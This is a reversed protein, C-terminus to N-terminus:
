PMKNAEKRTRKGGRQQGDKSSKRRPTDAKRQVAGTRIAQLSEFADHSFKLVVRMAEDITGSKLVTLSKVDTLAALGISASQLNEMAKKASDALAQLQEANHDRSTPRSM